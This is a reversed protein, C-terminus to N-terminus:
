ALPAVRRARRRAHFYGLLFVGMAITPAPEPVAQYALVLAEERQTLLWQGDGVLAENFGSLTWQSADFNELSTASLITWERNASPDFDLPLVGGAELQYNGALSLTLAGDLVVHDYTGENGSWDALDWRYTFGSWSQDGAVELKGVGFGPELRQNLFTFAVSAAVRGAGALAGGAGGFSVANGVTRGSAIALTGGDVEVAGSGLAANHDALLTGAKVKTGSAYTNSANLLLTGEGVKHLGNSSLGDSVIGSITLTGSEVGITPNLARDSGYRLIINGLWRNQGSVSNLSGNSRFGAGNLRVTKGAIEVGGELEIGSASSLIQITANSGAGFANNHTARVVIPGSNMSVGSIESSSITTTGAYSNNGSVVFRTGGPTNTSTMYFLGKNGGASQSIVGTLYHTPPAATTSGSGIFNMFGSTTNDLVVSQGYAGGDNSFGLFTLGSGSMTITNSGLAAASAVQLGAGKLTIGGTLGMTAPNWVLVQRKSSGVVELGGTGTVASEISFGRLISNTTESSSLAIRGGPAFNLAGPGTIRYTSDWGNGLQRLEALTVPSALSIEYEGTAPREFSAISANGGAENGGLWRSPDNWSGSGSSAAWTGDAASLTPSIALTSLLTLRILPNM